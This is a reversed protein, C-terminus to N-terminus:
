ERSILTKHQKSNRSGCSGPAVRCCLTSPISLPLHLHLHPPPLPLPLPNLSPLFFLAQEAYPLPSFFLCAACIFFSPHLPLPILLPSNDTISFHLFFPYLFLRSRPTQSCDFLCNSLCAPLCLLCPRAEQVFEEQKKARSSEARERTPKCRSTRRKRALHTNCQEWSPTGRPRSVLVLLLCSAFPFFSLPVTLNRKSLLCLVFLAEGERRNMNQWCTRQPTLDQRLFINSM